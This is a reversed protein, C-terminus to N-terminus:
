PDPEDRRVQIRSALGSEPRGYPAMPRCCPQRDLDAVRSSRGEDGAVEPGQDPRPSGDAQREPNKSEPKPEFEGAKIKVPSKREGLEAKIEARTLLSTSQCHRACRLWVPVGCGGAAM